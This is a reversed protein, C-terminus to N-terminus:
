RSRGPTPRPYRLRAWCAVIRRHWRPEILKLQGGNLELDVARLADRSFEIIDADSLNDFRGSQSPKARQLAIDLRKHVEDTHLGDRIMALERLACYTNNAAEQAATLGRGNPMISDFGNDTM